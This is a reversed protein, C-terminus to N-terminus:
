VSDTPRLPFPVITPVGFPSNPVRILQPLLQEAFIWCPLVIVRVAVGAAPAFKVPQLPEHEPVFGVQLTVTEESVFAWAFKLYFEAQRAPSEWRRGKTSGIGEERRLRCHFMRGHKSLRLTTM